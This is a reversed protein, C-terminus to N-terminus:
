SFLIVRDCRAALNSYISDLTHPDICSADDVWVNEFEGEPIDDFPNIITSCGAFDPFKSYYSPDDSSIILDVRQASQAIYMSKGVMKPFAFKISRHAKLQEGSSVHQMHPLQSLESLTESHRLLASDLCDSIIPKLHKCSGFTVVLQPQATVMECSVWASYRGCFSLSFSNAVALAEEYTEHRSHETGWDTGDARATLVVYETKEEGNMRDDMMSVGNCKRVLKGDM